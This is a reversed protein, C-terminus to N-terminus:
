FNFSYLIIIILLIITSIILYLTIVIIIIIIMIIITIIIIKIVFNDFKLMCIVNLFNLASSFFFFQYVYMGNYNYILLKSQLMYM